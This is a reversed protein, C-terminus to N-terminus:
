EKLIPFGRSQWEDFGGRFWHLNQYGCLKAIKVARVSRGCKIGNCYFAAPTAKNPIIDDLKNCSTDIDPLSISGEIHGHARDKTIRADVIILDPTNGVLNVLDEATLTPAEPITEPTPLVPKKAHLPMSILMCAVFIASYARTVIIGM